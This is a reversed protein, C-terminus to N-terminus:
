FLSGQGTPKTARRTAPKSSGSSSPSGHPESSASRAGDATAGVRGDAFELSLHAGAAVSKASRVPEGQANRVLAFGRALVSRYSLAALLQGAHSVRADHRRLATQLARAAREALREIRERDRGIHHRQAQANAFRAAKLRVALSAFSERRHRLVVQTCHSLRAGTSGVQRRAHAIQERLVRLTLGSAAQTFQRHHTQTNAKLARPLAAAAADLRQRPVALVDIASPLARMLGRLDNRRRDQERQWCLISRRAFGAVEAFLEARVPVAMEAAATPTPARRDAVFDILTVDPEHGVASILPIM